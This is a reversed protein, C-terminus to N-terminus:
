ATQEVPAKRTNQHNLKKNRAMIQRKDQQRSDNAQNGGIGTDPQHLM